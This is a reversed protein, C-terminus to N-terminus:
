ISLSRINKRHFLALTIDLALGDNAIKSHRVPKTPINVQALFDNFHYFLYKSNKNTLLDLTNDAQGNIQLLFEDFYKQYSEDYTFEFDIFKTQDEQLQFFYIYAKTQIMITM